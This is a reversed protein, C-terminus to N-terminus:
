LQESILDGEAFYVCWRSGLELFFTVAKGEDGPTDYKIGCIIQFPTIVFTCRDAARGCSVQLVALSM